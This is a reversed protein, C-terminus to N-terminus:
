RQGAFASPNYSVQGVLDSLGAVTGGLGASITEGAAGGALGGYFGGVAGGAAGAAVSVFFSGLDFSSGCHAALGQGLANTLGGLLGGLAASPLVALPALTAILGAGAGLLGAKAFQGFSAHPDAAALALISVGAGVFAGILQPVFLGTADVSNIPDGGVYEYLNTEGAAFGIPDKATWRGIVPDYDRAGFRTLGTADDVMGGAYGFPQFGPNTNQTVRGYEDYDLRQAV